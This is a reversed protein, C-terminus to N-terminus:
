YGNRSLFRQLRITDISYGHGLLTVGSTAQQVLNGRRSISAQMILNAIETESRMIQALSARCIRMLRTPRVARCSVLTERNDLLDLEGTFQGDTLRAVIHEERNNGVGELIEVAGDLIVFWDVDREGRVFLSFSESVIEESGYCKLRNLLAPAFTPHFIGATQIGASQPSSSNAESFILSSTM